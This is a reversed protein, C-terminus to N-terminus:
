QTIREMNKKSEEINKETTNGLLRAEDNERGVKIKITSESRRKGM